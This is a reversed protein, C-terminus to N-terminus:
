LPPLSAVIMRAGSLTYHGYDYHIPAGDPAVLKCKGGPCEADVLSIYRAGTRAIMPAIKRDLRLVQPTRMRDIASRDGQLMARALLNPYIGRYTVVPGLVVVPIHKRQIDAITRVLPMVNPGQWFAAFVIQDIQGSDILAMAARYSTMCGPANTPALTPRCASVAVPVISAQPYREALARWIHQAHSDGFLLITRKGPVPMPCGTGPTGMADLTCSGLGYERTVADAGAPDGYSAIREIAPPLPPHWMRRAAWAGGAVTLCAAIGTLVVLWARTSRRWRRQFPQEVLAYSLAAAALSAVILAVTEVPSLDTGFRIRYLALIPWHWLYLSYSRLGVWRLPALSLLRGAASGRGLGLLLAASICPLFPQPYDAGGIPVIMPVLMLPIAALALMQRLAAPIAFRPATAVVAGLGFQWARPPLLYFPAKPKHGTMVVWLVISAITLMLLALWLWRRAFRHLLLLILPFALYFQEEVGLSWTHLLPLTEAAPAFYDTTTWAYLNAYFLAAATANGTLGKFELPLLLFASAAVVLVLMVLLAPLIRVVRRRYFGILSFSQADLDALILTTILFGSIVFFIDVGLSGGSFGAIGAHFLLVPLVAVARLGDIDRRHALARAGTVAAMGAAM